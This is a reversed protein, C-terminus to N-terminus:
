PIIIFLDVMLLANIKYLYQNLYCRFHVQVLWHKVLCCTQIIKYSILEGQLCKNNNIETATFVIEINTRNFHDQLTTELKM